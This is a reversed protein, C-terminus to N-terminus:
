GQDTLANRVPKVWRDNGVDYAVFDSDFQWYAWSWDLAEAERAVFRLYRVRADMDAKDYVGFESLYLPRRHAQSWTQATEFDRRIAAKEEETGAWETGLTHEYDSWSAGQHTFPAPKYYHISTIINRDTEPLSLTELHDISYWHAPGIILTRDPHTKRILGHAERLYTNWLEPTLTRCPENLLEFLVRDPAGQTHQALQTWTALFRDRNSSARDGMAKFEHLDLVVLLDQDLAHSVAWDLTEFWAPPLRYDPAPGMHGFPHLNIRVHDFGADRIRQFHHPQMRAEDMNLWIPDYGLVNIGRGLRRNQEFAPQTQVHRRDAQTM